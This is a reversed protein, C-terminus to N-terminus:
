RLLVMKKQFIHKERLSSNGNDKQDIAILQYIYMGSALNSANFTKQYYGADQQENVLSIVERGIIDYV